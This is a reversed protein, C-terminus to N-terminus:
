VNIPVPVYTHTLTLSLSNQTYYKFYKYINTQFAVKPQMVNTLIFMSSYWKVPLLVTFMLQACIMENKKRWDNEDDHTQKTIEKYIGISHITNREYEYSKKVKYVRDAKIETLVNGIVSVKGWGGGQDELVNVLVREM